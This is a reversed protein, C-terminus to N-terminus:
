PGCGRNILIQLGVDRAPVILDTKGDNNLDGISLGYTNGGLYITPGTFSGNGQGLWTFIPGSSNDPNVTVAIDAHGDGDLDILRVTNNSTLGNTIQLTGALVLNGSGDNLFYQVNNSANGASVADVYGDENLDSLDLGGSAILDTNVSFQFNMGTGDGTMMVLGGDCAIVVDALGDNNLDAVKGARCDWVSSPASLTSTVFPPSAQSALLVNIYPPTATFLDDLGDGNVDGVFFNEFVDTGKQNYWYDAQTFTGDGAGMLINICPDSVGAIALDIHGDGDFDGHTIQFINGPISLTTPGTVNGDGTGLFIGALGNSTSTTAIDLKGDNNFDAVTSYAEVSCSPSAQVGDFSTDPNQYTVAVM